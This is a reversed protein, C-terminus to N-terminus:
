FIPRITIVACPTECSRRHTHRGSPLRRHTACKKGIGCRLAVTGFDNSSFVYRSKNIINYIKIYGIIYIIILLNYFPIACFYASPASVLHRATVKLLVTANYCHLLSTNRELEVVGNKNFIELFRIHPPELVIYM